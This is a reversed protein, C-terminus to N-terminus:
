ANVLAKEAAYQIAMATKVARLWGPAGREIDVKAAAEAFRRATDAKQEPTRTVKPAKKASKRTTKTAKRTPPQYVVGAARAVTRVTPVRRHASEALALPDGAHILEILQAGSYSFYPRDESM